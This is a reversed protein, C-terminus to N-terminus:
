CSLFLTDFCLELLLLWQGADNVSRLGPALRPRGALNPVAKPPRPLTQYPLPGQLAEESGPLAKCAEESGPLIEQPGEPGNGPFKVRLLKKYLKASALYVNSIHVQRPSCKQQSSGRDEQRNLLM